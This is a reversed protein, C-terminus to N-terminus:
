KNENNNGFLAQIQGNFGENIKTIEDATPISELLEARKELIRIREETVNNVREEKENSRERDRIDRDAKYNDTFEKSATAGVQIIDVLATTAVPIVNLTHEVANFTTKITNRLSAM